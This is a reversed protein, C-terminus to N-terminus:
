QQKKYSEEKDKRFPKHCDGCAKGLAKVQAGIAAMDGSQAIDALKGSEEGMKKAAATFKDWDKWIDPKADTKGDTIEQQFASEILTSAIQMQQAHTAINKQYPLQNKLTDAIAGINAGISMMVKQRYQVYSEDSQAYAGSLPLTLCVVVLLLKWLNPRISIM